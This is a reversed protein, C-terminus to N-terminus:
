PRLYMSTSLPTSTTEDSVEQITIWRSRPLAQQLHELTLEVDEQAAFRLQPLDDGAMELAGAEMMVKRYDEDSPDDTKRRAPVIRYPLLGIAIAEPVTSGLALTIQRRIDNGRAKEYADCIVDSQLSRDCERWRDWIVHVRISNTQPTHDELIIPQGTSQPNELEKALDDRLSAIAATDVAPSRKHIPM